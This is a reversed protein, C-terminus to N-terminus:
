EIQYVFTITDRFILDDPIFNYVRDGDSNGSAKAFYKQEREVQQMGGEGGWGSGYTISKIRILKIGSATSIDAAKQKADIVANDIVQKQVKVKLNESLKFLFSFDIEQNQKTFENLIKSLIQENYNFEIRIDQSAIYGSDIYSDNRYFRNKSVAFGTTKIDKEEFKLKKLVEVYYNTKTGLNKIADNMKPNIDSVHINLVGMDPKVVIRSSGTVILSPVEKEQAFVSTSIIFALICAIKNM